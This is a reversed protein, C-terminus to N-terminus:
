LLLGNRLTLSPINLFWCWYHHSVSLSSLQGQYVPFLSVCRALSWFPERGAVGAHQRGGTHTYGLQHIHTYRFIALSLRTDGKEHATWGEKQSLDEWQGPVSGWTLEKSSAPWHVGPIYRDRGGWLQSLLCIGSHRVHKKFTPEQSDAPINWM